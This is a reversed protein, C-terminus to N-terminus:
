LNVSLEMIHEGPAEEGFWYVKTPNDQGANARHALWVMNKKTGDTCTVPKASIGAKLTGDILTEHLDSAGAGGSGAVLERFWDRGILDGEGTGIIDCANQNIETVIGDRGLGVIAFGSITLCKVIFETQESLARDLYSREVNLIDLIENMHVLDREHEVLKQRLTANTATLEEEAAQRRLAVAAQDCFAELLRLNEGLAEEPLCFVVMGFLEGDVVLGKVYCQMTGPLPHAFLHQDKQVDEGTVPGTMEGTGLRVLQDDTMVLPTGSAVPEVGTSDGALAATQVARVTWTGGATTPSATVVASGAPLTRCITGTIYSFLDCEPGFSAIESSTTALFGLDHIHQRQQASLEQETTIDRAISLIVERGDMALFRTNIRFPVTAGKRTRLHREFTFTKGEEFPFCEPRTGDEGQSYLDAISMGLMENRSYGFARCASENVEIFRGPIEESASTHLFIPMHVSAFLTRFLDESERLAIEARRHESVDRLIILTGHGGGELVTQICRIAFFFEEGGKEITVELSAERGELGGTLFTVVDNTLGPLKVEGIRHGIVEEKALGAFRLYQDNILAISGKADLVILYESFTNIMTAIPVRTAASYVKANGVVKMDVQGAVQLIEMYKAVSNRNVKTERALDSITVGKPRFKIITMLRGTIDPDRDREGTQGAM